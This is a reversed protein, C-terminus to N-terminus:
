QVIIERDDISITYNEPLEEGIVSFAYLLSRDGAIDSIDYSVSMFESEISDGVVYSDEGVLRLMIIYKNDIKIVDIFGADDMIHKVEEYSKLFSDWGNGDNSIIKYSYANKRTKYSVLAFNDVELIDALESGFPASKEFSEAPTDYRITKAIQKYILVGIDSLIFIAGLIVFIRIIRKSM